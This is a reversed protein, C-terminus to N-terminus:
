MVDDRVAPLMEAAAGLSRALIGKFSIQDTNCSADGECKSEVLAGTDPNTFSRRASGIFGRTRDTWKSDRTTVAMVASGYLFVGVNYSWQDHNLDACANMEDTGDYVNFADDIIGVDVAWDYTREAWAQADADRTLKAIRAALQFFLGNTIANKYYYGDKGDGKQIKWRLGGNCKSDAWRGKQENFVNRALDLWPTSRAPQPVGNEAATMAALAWWAQDDNGTAGPTMFDNTTTAQNLLTAQLLPEYQKDGTASGYTLLAEIATGSQWWWLPYPLL